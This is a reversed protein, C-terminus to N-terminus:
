CNEILCSEFLSKRDFLKRVFKKRNFSWVCLDCHVTNQHIAVNKRPHKSTQIFDLFLFDRCFKESFFFQEQQRLTKHEM